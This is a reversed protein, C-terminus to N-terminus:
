FTLICGQIQLYISFTQNIFCLPYLSIYNVVWKIKIQINRFTNHPVKKTSLMKKTSFNYKMNVTLM